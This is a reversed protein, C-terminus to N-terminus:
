ASLSYVAATPAIPDLRVWLAVATALGLLVAAVVLARGRSMGSWLPLWSLAAITLPLSLVPLLTDGVGQTLQHGFQIM